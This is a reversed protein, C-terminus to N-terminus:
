LKAKPAAAEEKAQKKLVRRLIKGSVSKPIADVFRVGGRLRKHYAVKGDLWKIINAAEQEASAGSSKSTASRVIYALPVETGHAESEIGIVAVDDIAEHDVLIGELEAPAVQFGKYKILEKVRDTIYFNGNKDQYGVDGTRFWGDTLCEATAAPNNHYGQFVNPGKMYLEGVEGASVERPESGDEPMTMYKAEMNPLMKGVSGISTRWEEWPQTHTTPSTESLGYGQKIGCKIRAYVAEVLEHTLPAAGSNMMRLSSLDYKDVVPHKSLLLVVPPVVYSFTIRYNQVHACWKEIDFREMVVLKYGQYLTQHVLCTLGYIHFFPLFALVRDGKGDAGGNWTLHGAEGAALQLSNAVINRHSLRVGKPVGTTGSSYVLFSLDKDPNIKTKRYRTAGSINRISTFHKFRAEPDRKDGILIIRDEPINVKKAAERVVSLQPVQTIVAKAGSNKLQFALEEATYAPNAPSVVGGAWHAGWMVVPTDISNPTFLALVDGKRWDYVAKLGQGFALAADKLTKYTYFRQTDADQYIINDDPFTRDKREFLFTWLDVNPIDVPPYQSSVPM